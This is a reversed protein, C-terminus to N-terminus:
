TQKCEVSSLVATYEDLPLRKQAADQHARIVLLKEGCLAHAACTETTGTGDEQAIMCFSSFNTNSATVTTTNTVECADGKALCAIIFDRTVIEPEAPTWYFLEYIRREGKDAIMFRETGDLEVRPWDPVQATIHEDEYTRTPGQEPEPPTAYAPLPANDAIVDAPEATTHVVLGLPIFLAMQMVYMIVFAYAAHKISTKFYSLFFLAWLPGSIIITALDWWAFSHQGAYDMAWFLTSCLIITTSVFGVWGFWPARNGWREGGWSGMFCNVGILVGSFVVAFLFARTDVPGSASALVFFWVMALVALVAATGPGMERFRGLWDLQFRPARCLGTGKM